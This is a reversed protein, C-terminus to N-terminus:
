HQEPVSTAAKPPEDYFRVRLGTEAFLDLAANFGDGWQEDSLDPRVAVLEQIGVQIIARACDICPFWPLYMRCGQLSTGARAANYIANREAHETWLYKAPRQHRVEKDDDVGRPFGNFGMARVDNGEGVIVCGVRRSRDKSWQGVHRALNMFRKDWDAM